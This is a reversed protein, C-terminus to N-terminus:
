ERISLCKDTPEFGFRHNEPGLLVNMRQRGMMFTFASGKEVYGRKLMAVPDRFFQALHGILPAAGDLMPMSLPATAM